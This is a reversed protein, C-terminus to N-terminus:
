ANQMITIAYNTVDKRWIIYRASFTNTHTQSLVKGWGVLYRASM